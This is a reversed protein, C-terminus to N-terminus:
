GGLLPRLATPVSRSAGSLSPASLSLGAKELLARGRPGLLFAVFAAAEQPHPARNLVTITFTAGLHVPTLALTPMGQAAAEFSYFFGADLQGAELRGVLTEEPFVPWTSLAASLNPRDLTASAKQIAQVTLAGKPDLAPDTRGVRIGPQTVVDYWPDSRLMAAFRSQPNYGLVLPATAFTAYWSEHSGNAPGQLDRNPTPSASLFVDAPRVGAKIESVLADSGAAYGSFSDGSATEFAPGVRSEMLSTLSGAYLVDVPGHATASATADCAAVLVALAGLLVMFAKSSQM